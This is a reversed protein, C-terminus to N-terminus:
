SDQSILRSLVPPLVQLSVPHAESCVQAGTQSPGWQRAGQKDSSGTAEPCPSCPAVGPSRDGHLEGRSVLGLKSDWGPGCNKGHECFLSKIKGEGWGRGAWDLSRHFYRAYSLRPGIHTETSLVCVRDKVGCVAKSLFFINERQLDAMKPCCM